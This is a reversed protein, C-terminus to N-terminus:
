RLKKAASLLEKTSHRERHGEEFLKARIVRNQDVIITGPYPLGRKNHLGFDNIVQSGEDSLLTFPIGKEDTIEELIEVGDFSIGVM